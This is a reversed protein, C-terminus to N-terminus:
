LAPSGVNRSVFSWKCSVAQQKNGVASYGFCDYVCVMAFGRTTLRRPFAPDMDVTSDIDERMRSLQGYGLIIENNANYLLM